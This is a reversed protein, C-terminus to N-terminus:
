GGPWEGGSAFSQQRAASRPEGIGSRTIRFRAEVPAPPQRRKTWFTARTIHFALSYLTPEKPLPLRKTQFPTREPLTLLRAYVSDVTIRQRPNWRNVTICLIEG